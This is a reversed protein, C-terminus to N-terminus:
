PQSRPQLRPRLAPDFSAPTSRSAPGLVRQMEALFAELDLSRHAPLFPALLRRHGAYLKRAGAINGDAYHHMCIAAQILGKFFDADGGENALWCREFAEHAEHYRAADFLAVGERLAREADEPSFSDPDFAPEEPSIRTM